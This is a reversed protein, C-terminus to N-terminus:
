PSSHSPFGWVLLFCFVYSVSCNYLIYLSSKFRLLLLILMETSFIHASSRFLCRELSSICILLIHFSAAYWMDDSFHLNFCCSLLVCKKHCFNAVCVFMLHQCPHVAVPIRIRQQHSHLIACGRQFAIQCNRVAPPPWWSFIHAALQVQVILPEECKGREKSHVNQGINGSHSGSKLSAAKLSCQTTLVM